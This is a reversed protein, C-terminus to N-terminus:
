ILFLFFFGRPRRSSLWSSQTEFKLHIPLTAPPDKHSLCCPPDERQRADDQVPMDTRLWMCAMHSHSRMMEQLTIAMVPSCVVRTASRSFCFPISVLATCDPAFFVTVGGGGASCDSPFVCVSVSCPLSDSVCESWYSVAKNSLNEKCKISGISPKTHDYSCM